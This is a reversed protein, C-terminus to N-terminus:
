AVPCTWPMACGSPFDASAMSFRSAAFALAMHQLRQYFLLEEWGPPPHVCPPVAPFIPSAVFPPPSSPLIPLPTPLIGPGFQATFQNRRHPPIYPRAKTSCPSAPNPSPSAPHPVRSIPSSPPCLAPSSSRPSSVPTSGTPRKTAVKQASKCRCSCGPKVVVTVSREPNKRLKSPAVSTDPSPSTQEPSSPIAEFPISTSTSVPLQKASITSVPSAPLVYDCTWSAFLARLIGVCNDLTPERPKKGGESQYVKLANSYQDQAQRFCGLVKRLTQLKQVVLARKDALAARLALSADELADLKVHLSVRHVVTAALRQFKALDSKNMWVDNNLWSQLYQLEDAASDYYCDFLFNTQAKFADYSRPDMYVIKQKQSFSWAEREPSGLPTKKPDRPAQGVQVESYVLHNCNSPSPLLSTRDFLLFNPICSLIQDKFSLYDM